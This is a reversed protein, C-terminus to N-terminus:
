RRRKVRFSDSAVQGPGPSPGVRVSFTHRGAKVRYSKPSTCPAFAGSDLRCETPLSDSDFEYRVSVKRRRTRITNKPRETISAALLTPDLERLAGLANLRGGTAVVGALGPLPDVGGLIASRIEAVSATPDHSLLLAAVGAVHPSAMSTGSNFSIFPGYCVVQIADFYAGDGVSADENSVMAFRFATGALGDLRSADASFDLDAFDGRVVLSTVWDTGDFTQVAVADLLESDLDTRVRGEVTCDREGTLNVAPSRAFSNTNPVYGTAPSDALSFTGAFAFTNTRGWTNVSGGAIGTTWGAAGLDGEFGEALVPTTRDRPFSSRVQSGPAALDVSEDGFNSFGSRVDDKTTSAVCIMNSAPINCPYSPTVDNDDGVGDAGGNGAAAVFLVGPANTVADTMAQSSGAGGLSANVVDAGNESAYVFADAIDATSGSGGANTVRLPMLGVDWAVGATGAGNNGEAGITGAVHTGHGNLDSPDNDEGAGPHGRFDWGAFDDVFGNADDDIDNTERGSGSEGPNLRVNGDIDPHQRAVGSDVVAVTVQSDGTVVDWAPVADIDAGATGPSGLIPQGTNRLPWQDTAFATDNPVAAIQAIGNPEAYRVGPLGELEDVARRVGLQGELQLVQTRPLLLRRDLAASVRTRADARDDPSSFAEFGVIVEGPVFDRGAVSDPSAVAPPAIWAAMAAAMTMAGLLGRRM